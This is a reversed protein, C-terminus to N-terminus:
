FLSEHLNARKGRVVELEERLADLNGRSLAMPPLLEDARETLERVRGERLLGNMEALTHKLPRGPQLVPILVKRADSPELKLVGGGYIRGVLEASLQAPTSLLALAVKTPSVLRTKWRLAHLSNTCTAGVDNLTIRPGYHSMYTLFADAHVPEVAYWPNRKACQSRLHIGGLRADQLLIKTAKPLREGRVLTMVFCKGGTEKLKSFAGETLRFTNLKRSSVIAPTVQSVSLGLLERQAATILFVDNAGTVTGIRIEALDGLAHSCKAMSELVGVVRKNVAAIEWSRRWYEKPVPVDSGKGLVAEGLEGAGASAAIVEEAAEGYGEALLVLTEAQTGGFLVDHILVYKIRRFRSLLLNRVPVAYDARLFSGPLVMGIRGGCSLFKLSGLLFYVWYDCGRSLGLFDADSAKRAVERQRDSLLHHRVFPPNGLIVDVRGGIDDPCTRMFDKNLIRLRKSVLASRVPLPVHDDLDIGCVRSTGRPHRRLAAMLFVGEGCAPDLVSGHGERLAWEAVVEAVPAPTYFRGGSKRWLRDASGVSEITM